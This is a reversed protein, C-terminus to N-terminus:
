ADHVKARLGISGSTSLMIQDGEAMLFTSAFAAAHTGAYMREPTGVVRTEM